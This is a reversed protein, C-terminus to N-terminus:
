RNRLNKQVRLWSRQMVTRSLSLRMPIGIQHFRKTMLVEERMM